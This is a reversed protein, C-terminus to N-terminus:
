HKRKDTELALLCAAQLPSVYSTSSTDTSITALSRMARRAGAHTKYTEGPTLIIRSGRIVHFSWQGNRAHIFEAKLRASM